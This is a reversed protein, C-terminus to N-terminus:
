SRLMKLRYVCLYHFFVRYLKKGEKLIATSGMSPGLHLLPDLPPPWPPWAKGMGQSFLDYYLHCSFTVVCIQHKKDGGGAGGPRQIRWQFAQYMLIVLINDAASRYLLM